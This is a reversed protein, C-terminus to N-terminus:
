QGAKFSRFIYKTLLSSCRVQKRLFGEKQVSLGAAHNTHPSAVQKFLTLELARAFNASLIM